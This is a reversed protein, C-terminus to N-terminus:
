LAIAEHRRPCTLDDNGRTTKAVVTTIASGVQMLGASPNPPPYQDWYRSKFYFTVLHPDCMLLPYSQRVDTARETRSPLKKDRIFCDRDRYFRFDSLLEPAALADSPSDRNRSVTKAGINM